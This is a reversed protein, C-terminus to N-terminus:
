HTDFVAQYPALARDVAAREEPTPAGPDRAPPLSGFRLLCAKLLVRAKPSTLDSGAIAHQMRGKAVFGSADGRSTRVVPMGSFTARSLAADLSASTSGYPAYGEVVFGALPRDALNHEIRALVEIQDQPRASM